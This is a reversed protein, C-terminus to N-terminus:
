TKEFPRCRSGDAPVSNKAKGRPQGLHPSFDRVLPRGRPQPCHRWGTANDMQQRLNRWRARQANTLGAQSSHPLQRTAQSNGPLQTHSSGPLQRPATHSSHPLQRAPLRPATHFPWNRAAILMNWHPDILRNQVGSSCTKLSTELLNCM